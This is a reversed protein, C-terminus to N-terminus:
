DKSRKQMSGSIGTGARVLLAVDLSIGGGRRPCIRERGDLPIVVNAAAAYVTPKGFSRPETGIGSRHHCVRRTYSGGTGATGCQVHHETRRPRRSHRRIVDGDARGDMLADCTTIGGGWPFPDLAIDIRHYTSLYDPYFPQDGVIEVGPMEVCGPPGHIVMRAKPVAELVKAWLRRAPESAKAINNMCGFTVYGKSRAPLPNVDLTPNPANYAGIRGAAAAGDKRQIGPLRSSRSEIMESRPSIRIWTRIPFVSLRHRDIGDNRLIGSVDGTGAARSQAGFVLLRNNAMHMPKLDWWFTSGSGARIVEAVADHSM